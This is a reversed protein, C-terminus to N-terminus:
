KSVNKALKIAVRIQMCTIINNGKTAAGSVLGEIASFSKDCM